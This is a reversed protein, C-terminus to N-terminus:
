EGSPANTREGAARRALLQSRTVPPRREEIKARLQEAEANQRELYARVESQHRLYYAIAAYVDPLTLTDYARVMEEPSMGNEYQDVILDLSIRTAGVRITGGEDTRLPPNDAQLVLSENVQTSM